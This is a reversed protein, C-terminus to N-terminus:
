RQWLSRWLSWGSLPSALSPYTSPDGSWFFALNVYFEFFLTWAPGNSPFSAGKIVGDGISVAGPFLFPLYFANVLVSAFTKAVSFDSQGFSSKMLLAVAGLGLGVAFMPYLRKIRLIAFHGFSMGAAIRMGYAKAIVFGSLAFFLDVAFYANKMM